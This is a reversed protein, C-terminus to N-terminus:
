EVPPRLHVRDLADLRPFAGGKAIRVVDLKLKPADFSYVIGADGIHLEKTSLHRQIGFFSSNVIM